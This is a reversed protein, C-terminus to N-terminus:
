PRRGSMWASWITPARWRTTRWRGFNQRGAAVSARPGAALSRADHQGDSRQCAPRFARGHRDRRATRCRTSPGGCSPINPSTARIDDLRKGTSELAQQFEAKAKAKAEGLAMQVRSHANIEGEGSTEIPLFIMDKFHNMVASQVGDSQSSPMCGFPKLSLVMHAQKNCPTTSTRPSRWIGKAAARSSTTTPHRTRPWSRAAQGAPPRHRRAPRSRRPPVPSELVLRRTRLGVGQRRFKLERM